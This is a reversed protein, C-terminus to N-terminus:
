GVDNWWQLALANTYIGYGRNEPDEQMNLYTKYFDITRSFDVGYAGTNRPIVMVTHSTSHGPYVREYDSYTGLFAARCTIGTDVAFRGPYCRKLGRKLFNKVEALTRTFTLESTSAPFFVPDLYYYSNAFSTSVTITFADSDVHSGM